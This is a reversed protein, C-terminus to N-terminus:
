ILTNEWRISNQFKERRCCVATLERSRSRAIFPLNNIITNKLRIELVVISEVCCGVNIFWLNRTLNGSDWLCLFDRILSRNEVRRHNENPSDLLILNPSRLFQHIATSDIIFLNLMNRRGTAQTNTAPSTSCTTDHNDIDPVHWIREDSLPSAVFFASLFSKKLTKSIFVFSM